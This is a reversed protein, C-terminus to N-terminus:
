LMPGPSNHPPATLPPPLPPDHRVQRPPGPEQGATPSTPHSSLSPKPQPPERGGFRDCSYFRQKESSSSSPQRREQSRGREQRRERRCGTPGEGPPPGPGAASSPAPWSSSFDACLALNPSLSGGVGSRAGLALLPVWPLASTPPHDQRTGLGLVRRGRSPTAQVHPLFLFVTESGQRLGHGSLPGRERVAMQTQPCAPGRRWPSRSGTGAATAATTTTPCLRAPQPATWPLTASILWM